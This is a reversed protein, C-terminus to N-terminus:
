LLVTLSFAILIILYEILTFNLILKHFWNHCLLKEYLSYKM